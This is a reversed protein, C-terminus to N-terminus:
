RIGPVARDDATAEFLPKRSFGFMGALLNAPFVETATNFGTVAANVGSGPRNVVNQGAATAQAVVTRSSPPPLASSAVRNNAANAINASPPPTGANQTPISGTAAMDVRSSGFPNAFPNESFRMTDSSCAGASLAVVGVSVARVLDRRM